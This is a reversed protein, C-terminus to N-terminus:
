SREIAFYSGGVASALTEAANVLNRALRAASNRTAFDNEVLFDILRRVAKEMGAETSEEGLGVIEARIRVRKGPARPTRSVIPISGSDDALLFVAFNLGPLAIQREVIGRLVVTEGVFDDPSERLSAV